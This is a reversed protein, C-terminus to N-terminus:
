IYWLSNQMIKQQTLCREASGRSYQDRHGQNGPMSVKLLFKARFNKLSRRQQVVCAPIVGIYVGWQHIGQSM